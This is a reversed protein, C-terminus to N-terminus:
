AAAPVPAIPAPTPKRHATSAGSGRLSRRVLGVAQAFWKATDLTRSFCPASHPGRRLAAGAAKLGFRTAYYLARAVARTNITEAPWLRVDAIMGWYLRALFWKRNLREPMVRHGVRAAPEYWIAGGAKAVRELMDLDEGGFLCNGVRGVDTRFGGVRKLWDARFSLNVGFLEDPLAARPKPGLDVRSLYGELDDGLWKPRAAPYVLDAKGGVAARDGSVYVAWLWVLWDPDVNVDDDLFAVIEFKAEAVARNRAHSLGQAPERFYRLRGGFRDRFEDVVQPTRDSSNNDVVLVEFEPAGATRIQSLSDLTKALEGSRNYTAIAVSVTM